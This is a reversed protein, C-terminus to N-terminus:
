LERNIQTVGNEQFIVWRIGDPDTFHIEGTEEVRTVKIQSMLILPKIDTAFTVIPQDLWLTLGEYLMKGGPQPSIKMYSPKITATHIEVPEIDYSDINESINFELSSLDGEMLNDCISDARIIYQPPYITLMSPEVSVMYCNGLGQRLQEAFRLINEPLARRLMVQGTNDRYIEWVVGDPDTFNIEGNNTVFNVTILSMVVLSQISDEISVATQELWLTLGQYLMEGAPQPTINLYSVEITHTLIEILEPQLPDPTDSVTFELSSLDGQMLNDCISQVHFIFQPPYIALMSPEISIMYCNGFGEQLREQLAIISAPLDNFIVLQVNGDSDRFIEYNNGKYEFYINRMTTTHDILIKGLLGITKISIQSEVSLIQLGLILLESDIEGIGSYTVNFTDAYVIITNDTPSVAADFEVTQLLGILLPWPVSPDPDISFIYRQPYIELPSIEVNILYHPYTATEYEIELKKKFETIEVPIPPPTVFPPWPLSPILGVYYQAILLADIITVSGDIDVDAAETNFIPPIIGIYYQATLLADIINVKNDNNVDGYLISPSQAYIGISTIILFIFLVLKLTTKKIMVKEEM